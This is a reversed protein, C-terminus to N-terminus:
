KWGITELLTFSLYGQSLANVPTISVTFTRCLSQASFSM